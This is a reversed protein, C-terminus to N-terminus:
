IMVTTRAHINHAQIPPPLSDIAAEMAARIEEETYIRLTEKRLRIM